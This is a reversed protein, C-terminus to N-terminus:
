RRCPELRLAAGRRRGPRATTPVACSRALGRRFPSRPSPALRLPAARRRRRPSARGCAQARPRARRRRDPSRRRCACCPSPRARLRRTAALQVPQGGLGGLGLQEPEHGLEAGVVGDVADEHLERQRLVDALERHEVRDGGLFVDVAEVRDVGAQERTPPGPEHGARRSARHAEDGLAAGRQAARVRHDDPAAVDDALGHRLQQEGGVRRHRDRV